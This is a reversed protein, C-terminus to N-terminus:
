RFAARLAKVARPDRVPLSVLLRGHGDRATLWDDRLVVDSLDDFRHSLESRVRGKADFETMRIERREPDITIDPLGADVQWTLGLLGLGVFALSFLMKTMQMLGDGPAVPVLWVGAAAIILAVGLGRCALRILVHKTGEEDAMSIEPLVPLARDPMITDPLATM